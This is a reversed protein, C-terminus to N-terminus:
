ERAAVCSHDDVDDDDNDHADNDVACLQSKSTFMLKHAARRM